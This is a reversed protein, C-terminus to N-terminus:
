PADAGDGAGAMARRAGEDSLLRQAESLAEGPGDFAAIERGVEFMADLGVRRECLCAAGSATIELPKLNLGTDDQWRMVNLGLRGMSYMRAMDRYGVEGLMTAKVGWAELKPSGFVAVDFRRALHALTFARRWKDIRRVADTVQVFLRPSQRLTRAGEAAEGGASEIEALRDLMPRHRDALQMEILITGATRVAAAVSACVEHLQARAQEVREERIAEVDPSDKDLEALMLKTPNPDGPGSGFVIDHKPAVGEVPRFVEADVGYPRGLVRGFGMVTKMEEATAPNNVVHLLGAWQVMPQGFLEAAGGGHAWHPADLWFLVHRVGIMEFLSAARGERQGSPVAMLGNAWMGITLDVRNMRVFREFLGALDQAAARRRTPDAAAHAVLKQIPELEWYIVEHGASEFGRAADLFIDRSNTGPHSMVLVRV